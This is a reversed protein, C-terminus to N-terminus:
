SFRGFYIFNFNSAFQFVSRYASCIFSIDLDFQFLNFGTSFVTFTNFQQFFDM